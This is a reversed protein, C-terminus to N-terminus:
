RSRSSSTEGGSSPIPFNLDLVIQFAEHMADDRFLTAYSRYDKYSDEFAEMRERGAEVTSWYVTYAISGCERPDQAAELCDGYNYFSLLQEEAEARSFSEFGHDVVLLGVEPFTETYGNKLQFPDVQENLRLEWSQSRTISAAMRVSGNSDTVAGAAHLLATDENKWDSRGCRQPGGPNTVCKDPNNFIVWYVSIALPRGPTETPSQTPSPAPRPIPSPTPSEGGACDKCGCVGIQDLKPLLVCQDLPIMGMYGADELLACQVSPQDPFEFTATLNGVIKGEGCVSCGDSPVEPCTSSIVPAPNPRPIPAPVTPQGAATPQPTPDPTPRPTPIPTPDPTPQSTPQLTPIATTPSPSPRKTKDEKDNNTGDDDDDGDNKRSDSKKRHAFLGRPGNYQKRDFNAVANRLSRTEAARAANGIIVTVYFLNTIRMVVHRISHLLTFFTFFIGKLSFKLM